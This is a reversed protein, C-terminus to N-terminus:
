RAAVGASLHVGHHEALTRVARAVERDREASSWGLSPAMADAVREVTEQTVRGTFALTTRRQLVDCVRRVHEHEVLFTVERTSLEDDVIPSDPGALLHTVVQESRTGYRRFLAERRAPAVGELREELWAARAVEDRPYRKGGGIIEHGTHRARIEGRRELVLDTVQQALARFTTWKGGVISVTLRGADDTRREIRYDRSVVGPSLDDARPLPRIGAFRYVIQERTVPIEPFVHSVLDIFYQVERDTCVAPERPDVRVDTTGIMVRGHLPYILVIRGDSHEFFIEHGGTAEHLAPNDVVIHSGKTGGMYQTPSGLASNTLDTWPGTANVIVDAQVVARAGDLADRVQIGDATLGTAEAYTFAHSRPNAALGDLVLELAIREPQGVSADHYTATFRIDPALDPFQERSAGPGSFRHRPLRGSRRSYSDYMTLGLKALLAGRESSGRSPRHTIVRAPAGLMGSWLRRLPITTALPVVQHPATYLLSNREQVAEQVLRMEGNELYRLGGHVMHSSASSAGASIDAREVLVADIGQLCLDRFTAAGNIGGGIVAVTTSVTAPIRRDRSNAGAPVSSAM